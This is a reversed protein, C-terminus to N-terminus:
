QSERMLVMSPKSSSDSREAIGLRRFAELMIMERDVREPLHICRIHAEALLEAFLRRKVPRQYERRSFVREWEGITKANPAKWKYEPEAKGCCPIVTTRKM